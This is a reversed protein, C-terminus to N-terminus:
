ASVGSAVTTQCNSKFSYDTFALHIQYSISQSEDSERVAAVTEERGDLFAVSM